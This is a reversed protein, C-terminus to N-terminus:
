FSDRIQQIKDIIQEHTQQKQAIIKIKEGKIKAFRNKLRDYNKHLFTNKSSMLDSFEYLYFNEKLKIRIEDLKPRYLPFKTPEQEYLEISSYIKRELFGISVETANKYNFNIASSLHNFQSSIRAYSDHIEDNFSKLFNEYVKSAFKRLNAFEIDSYLPESKRITEYRIQWDQLSKELKAYLTGNAENVANQIIHLNKVYTKFMKGIEDDDFFLKKYITDTQIKSVEYTVPEYQIKNKLFSSKKQAYRVREQSVINNFVETAIKEIINEIKTYASQLDKSFRLKLTEFTELAEKEFDILIHCLEDFIDLFYRRQTILTNCIHHADQTIAFKKSEYSKPRIQTDIFGVVENINSQKLLELNELGDSEYVKTIEQKFAVIKEELYREQLLLSPANSTQKIEELLATVITDIQHKKDHSRAQLAQIASIPVILKFFKGFAEQVYALTQEIQEHTFKDKQNLVCLSKNQYMGMFEKLVKLESEKGANDMLTLWIIGDVEQLVKTTTRTDSDAESNLGPTDVFIIDKLIDLPAYITLYAIDEVAERQDTFKKIHQSEHFEDRGDKYRVKIRFEDGYRIYNVKSTVPTIGTPLIDKSLLANLFTSKGSSFQGTVAIKMPEKSRARLKKLAIKLENSPTCEEKLLLYGFEKLKGTLTADFVPKKTQFLTEYEQLFTEIYGM